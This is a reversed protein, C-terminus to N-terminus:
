RVENDELHKHGTQKIVQEATKRHTIKKMIIMNAHTYIIDKTFTLINVQVM